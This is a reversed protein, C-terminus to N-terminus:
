LVVLNILAPPWERDVEVAQTQNVARLVEFLVIATQYAKTLQAHDAKDAANQLAKDSKKVRGMLTPDNEEYCIWGVSVVVAVALANTFKRYIDLKALMRRAQFM